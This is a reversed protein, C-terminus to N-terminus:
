GRKRSVQLAIIRDATLEDARHRRLEQPGRRFVWEQTLADFGVELVEGHYERGVSYGRDYLSVKGDKSVKRRVARGALLGLVPELDWCLRECGPCYGRGSHVLAPYLELRSLGGAVPYKGRQLRDEEDLRAQLQEPGACAWPEAWRKGTGQSQEILGNEQPRHPRNRHLGVGLGCAWLELATPLGGTAGWPHGNDAKLRLPRGWRAFARRLSAQV